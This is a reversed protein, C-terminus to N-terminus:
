FYINNQMPWYNMPMFFYPLMSPQDYPLCLLKNAEIKVNDEVITTNLNTPHEPRSSVDTMRRHREEKREFIIGDEKFRKLIMRATSPKLGLIEATKKITLGEHCVHTVIKLRTEYSIYSYKSSGKEKTMFEISFIINLHMFNKRKIPLM